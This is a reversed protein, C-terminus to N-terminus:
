VNLNRQTIGNWRDMEFQQVHLQRVSVLGRRRVVRGIVDLTHEVTNLDPSKSPWPLVNVTHAQLLKLTTHAGNQMIRM